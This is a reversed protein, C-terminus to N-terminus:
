RRLEQQPRRLAERGGWFLQACQGNSVILRMGSLSPEEDGTTFYGATLPTTMGASCTRGEPDLFVLCRGGGGGGGLGDGGADTQWASAMCEARTQCYECCSRADTANGQGDASLARALEWGANYINVPGAPAGVSELLNSPNCAVYRVPGGPMHVISNTYYTGTRYDTSTEVRSTWLTTWATTTTTLTTHSPASTSTATATTATTTSTTTTYSTSAPLTLSLTSRATLLVTSHTFFVLKQLCSVSRPYHRVARRAHGHSAGGAQGEPGEVEEEEQEEEEEEQEEEEEDADDGLKRRVYGKPYPGRLYSDMVSVFPASTPLYTAPTDTITRVSTVTTENVIWSISRQTIVATRWFTETETLTTEDKGLSTVTRTSTSTPVSSRRKTGYSTSCSLSTRATRTSPAPSSTTLVARVEVGSGSA